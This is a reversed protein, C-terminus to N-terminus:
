PTINVVVSDFVLRDFDLVGNMNTDIAFYFKSTGKPLVSADINLVEFPSSIDFLPIQLTVLIDLPSSGAFVWSMTGPDFYFWGVTPIDAALWYDANNSNAADLSIDVILKDSAGLTVPGNLGNATIDPVSPAVYVIDFSSSQTTGLSSGSSNKFDIM